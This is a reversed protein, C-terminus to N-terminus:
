LNPRHKRQVAEHERALEDRLTLSSWAVNSPTLVAKLPIPPVGCERMELLFADLQPNLLNCMVLMLDSFGGQPADKAASCPIGVLAGLPIACEDPQVARYVLGQKQCIARLRAEAEPNLNYTLLTPGSMSEGAKTGDNECEVSLVTDTPVGLVFREHAKGFYM